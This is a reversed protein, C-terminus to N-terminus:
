NMTKKPFPRVTSRQHYYWTGAPFFWSVPDEPLQCDSGRTRMTKSSLSYGPRIVIGRPGSFRSDPLYKWTWATGYRGTDSTVIFNNGPSRKAPGPRWGNNESTVKSIWNERCAVIKICPDVGSLRSKGTSFFFLEGIKKYWSIKLQYNVGWHNSIRFSESELGRYHNMSWQLINRMWSPIMTDHLAAQESFRTRWSSFVIGIWNDPFPVTHFFNQIAWSCRRHNQFGFNQNNNEDDYIRFVSDM